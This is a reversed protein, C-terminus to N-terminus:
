KSAGSQRLEAEADNLARVVDAHASVDARELANRLRGGVAQLITQVEDRLIYNGKTKALQFEEREVELRERRVKLAEKELRLAKTGGGQADMIDSHDAFFTRLWRVVARLDIVDKDIPAGYREAQQQIQVWQWPGQGNGAGMERWHKQPISAYYEWRLREEREKEVRKLAAMERATPHEGAARKRMASAALERDLVAAASLARAPQATAEEANKPKKAPM